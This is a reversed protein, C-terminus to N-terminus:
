ELGAGAVFSHLAIIAVSVVVVGLILWLSKKFVMARSPEKHITPIIDTAAIYIFFGAVIGLLPALTREAVNGLLYFAVASATAALASLVNIVITKTRGLGYHLLIGFDGLRHPIEHAAIALTVVMGSSPSILFGAAIAVGDIIHHLTGGLIVMAVIPETRAAAEVATEVAAEVAVGAAAEAATEVATDDAVGVAALGAEETGVSGLHNHHSYEGSGISSQGSHFRAEHEQGGHAHSHEDEDEHAHSHFWNIGAELLFFLILGVMTFILIPTAESQEIAEPLLDVFAAALLAGAAFATAYGSFTRIRQNLALLLGGALSFAGGVLSCIILQIIVPM